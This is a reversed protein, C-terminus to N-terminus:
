KKSTKIDFEQVSSIQKDGEMVYLNFRATGDKMKDAKVMATYRIAKGPSLAEVHVTPSIFIRKNGTTEVVMPVINFLTSESTNVVEFIIKSLENSTIINDRNDDVFRANRIEVPKNTASYLESVSFAKDESTTPLAASYGDTYDPGYFDYIRDDIEGDESVDYQGKNQMVEQYHEHIERRDAKDNANGIAGGIVAGGAMGIITGVDSGRGGNSIGGIASGLISGFQAGVYTGAGTYSGCSM